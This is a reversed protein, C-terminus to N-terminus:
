EVLRELVLEVTRINKGAAEAIVAWEARSPYHNYGLLTLAIKVRDKSKPFITGLRAVIDAPITFSV